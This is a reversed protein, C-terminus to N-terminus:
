DRQQPTMTSLRFRLRCIVVDATGRQIARELVFGRQNQLIRQWPRAPAVEPILVVLRQYREADELARLYEVIPPGLARHSTRLTILPVNPHWAEWQDRFTADVETDAPDAYCVTVAVVEDGISLAASVAEATLRSMGRVPVVALSRLRVPPPPTKGLELQEGIRDYARRVRTFM